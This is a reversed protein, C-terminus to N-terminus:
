LQVRRIRRRCLQQPVDGRCGGGAVASLPLGAGHLSGQRNRAHDPLAGRLQPPRRQVEPASKRRNISLAVDQRSNTKWVHHMTRHAAYRQSSAPVVCRRVARLGSSAGGADVGHGGCLEHRLQSGEQAAADGGDRLSILTLASESCSLQHVIAAM